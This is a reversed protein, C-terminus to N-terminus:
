NDVGRDNCSNCENLVKDLKNEVRDLKKNISDIDNQVVAINEKNNITMPQIDGIIKINSDVDSRIETSYAVVSTIAILLTIGVAIFTLTPKKIFIGQSKDSPM